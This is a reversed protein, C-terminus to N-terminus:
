WHRPLLGILFEKLSIVSLVLAEPLAARWVQFSHGGDVVRYTHKISLQHMLVHLEENSRCLTEEEDGGNIMM